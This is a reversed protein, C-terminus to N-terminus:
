KKMSFILKYTDINADLFLPRVQETRGHNRAEEWADTEMVEPSDMDYLALYPPAGEVAKFRRACHVGEVGVLAPVHDEDYWANFLEDHEPAIGLRVSLLYEPDQQPLTGAELIEQYINRVTNLFHPRIKLTDPSERSSIEKYADSQIVSPEEMEYVALYTPNGDVCLYRRAAIFGQVENIREPIHEEDYWTNFEEDMAPNIDTWVCILGNGREKSM